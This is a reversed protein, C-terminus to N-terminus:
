EAKDNHEAEDARRPPPLRYPLDLGLPPGFAGFQPARPDLASATTSPLATPLALALPLPLALLLTTLLM